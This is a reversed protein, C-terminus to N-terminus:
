AGVDRARYASFVVWAGGLLAAYISILIRHLIVEPRVGPLQAYFFPVVVFVMALTALLKSVPPRGSRAAAVIMLFIAATLCATLLEPTFIWTLQPAPISAPWHLAIAACAALLFSLLTWRRGFSWTVLAACFFLIITTADSASELSRHLPTALRLYESSAIALLTKLGAVAFIPAVAWWATVRNGDRRCSYVAFLLLWASWSASFFTQYAIAPIRFWDRWELPDAVQSWHPSWDPVIPVLSLCVAVALFLWPLTSRLRSFAAVALGLAICFAPPFICYWIVQSRDLSGCTCNAFYVNATHTDGGASRVTIHFPWKESTARSAENAPLRRVADLYRNAARLEQRYVSMGTFPRDNVAILEDGRHLFEKPYEVSRIINTYPRLKFPIFLLTSRAELTAIAFRIQLAAISLTTAIV